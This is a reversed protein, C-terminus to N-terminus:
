SHRSRHEQLGEMIAEEIKDESVRTDSTLRMMMGTTPLRYERVFKTRARGISARGSRLVERAQQRKYRGRLIAGRVAPDDTRVAELLLSKNPLDSSEVQELYTQEARSLKELLSLSGSVYAKSKGITKALEEQTTRTAALYRQFAKAEEIPNLNERQINEVLQEVSKKTDDVNRIIVPIFELKARKAAQYRREGTIVQFVKDHAVWAVTIPQIVGHERISAVLGDFSEGNTRVKRVQQPDPRIQTIPLSGAEPNSKFVKRVAQHEVAHFPITTDAIRDRDLVSAREAVADSLATRKTSGHAADRTM